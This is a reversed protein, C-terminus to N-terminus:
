LNSTIHPLGQNTTQFMFKKVKWINPIDYGWSVFEYNESPNFGVVPVWYYVMGVNVLCPHYIRDSVPLKIPGGLNKSQM